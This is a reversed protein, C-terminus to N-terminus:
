KLKSVIIERLESPIGRTYKDAMINLAEEKSAVLEHEFKINEKNYKDTVLYCISVPQEKYRARYEISLLEKITYEVVSTYLPQFVKDGDKFKPNFEM